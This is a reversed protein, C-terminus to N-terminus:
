NGTKKVHYNDRQSTHFKWLTVHFFELSCTFRSLKMNYRPVSGQKRELTAEVDGEVCLVQVDHSEAWATMHPDLHEPTWLSLVDGTYRWPRWRRNQGLRGEFAAVSMEAESGYQWAWAAVNWDALCTRAHAVCPKPRKSDPQMFGLHQLSIELQKRCFLFMGGNVKKQRTSILRPKSFAPRSLAEHTQTHGHCLHPAVSQWAPCRSFAARPEKRARTWDLSCICRDSQDWWYISIMGQTKKEGKKQLNFLTTKKKERKKYTLCLINLHLTNNWVNRPWCGLRARTQCPNRHKTHADADTHARMHTERQTYGRTYFTCFTWQTTKKKKKQM